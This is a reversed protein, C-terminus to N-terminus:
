AARKFLHGLRDASFRWSSPLADSAGAAVGSRYEHSEYLITTGHGKRCSKLQRAIESATALYARPADGLQVGGFQVLCFVVHPNQDAVWADIAAAYTRGAKYNQVLGWGLDQSGKVSVKLFRDGRTAILDYDPQNAGYQVSVDCGAQALLGAAFAEAAVGVHFAKM